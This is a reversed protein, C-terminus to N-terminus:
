RVNPDATSRPSLFVDRPEVPLAQPCHPLSTAQVKVLHIAAFTSSTKDHDIAIKGRSLTVMNGQTDMKLFSCIVVGFCGFTVGGSPLAHAADRASRLCMGFANTLVSSCGSVGLVM